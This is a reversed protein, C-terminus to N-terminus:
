PLRGLLAQGRPSLEYGPHHSITLGLNKLKRVNIKLWDKEFGTSEALVAAAVKPQRAIAELVTQTWPGVRSAADLRALKSTLKELAAPDLEDEQRLRLRPDPGAYRVEIRYLYGERGALAARLDAASAQGAQVADEETIQAAEIQDVRDIALVGVATTLTGGTRVSPRRWRRFVLTVRGSQIAQLEAMKLLM